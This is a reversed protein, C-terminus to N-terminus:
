RCNAVSRLPRNFQYRSTQRYNHGPRLIVSEQDPGNVADPFAQTELCLGSNPGCLKGQRDTFEDLHQGTYLQLGVETTEISVSRGSDPEALYAAFYMDHETKHQRQRDLCLCHDINFQTGMNDLTRLQRFDFHSNKVKHEATPIGTADTALYSDAAIQLQHQWINKSEPNLNFYSHNTLNIPTALDTSAQYDITLRNQEDLIFSVTVDITAAFGAEAPITQLKMRLTSPSHEIVSWLKRQFGASAGHLHNGGQNCELQIQRGDLNFRGRKIRNAWPGVLAGLYCNHQQYEQLHPYGLVINGLRGDRDCNWLEVISAGYDSILIKTQQSNSLQYVSYQSHDWTTAVPPTHM